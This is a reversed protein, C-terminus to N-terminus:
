KLAGIATAFRGPDKENEPGGNTENLIAGGETSIIFQPVGRVHFTSEPDLLTAQGYSEAYDRVKEESDAAVIVRMGVDHEPLYNNLAVLVETMKRCHPCWPAVVVTLCKPMACDPLFTENGGLSTLTLEPLLGKPGPNRSASSTTSAKTNPVRADGAEKPSLWRFDKVNWRDSSLDATIDAFYKKKTGADRFDALGRWRGGSEPHVTDREIGSLTLRLTAQRRKFVWYDDTSKSAVYTRVVTEFNDRAGEIEAARAVGVASVFVLVPLLAHRVSGSYDAFRSEDLPM